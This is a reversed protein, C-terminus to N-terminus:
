ETSVSFANSLIGYVNMIFVRVLSPKPSYIEVYCLENLVFGCGGYYHFASLSGALSLFLVIIEREGSWKLVSNSIRAM